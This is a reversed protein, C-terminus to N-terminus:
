RDEGSNSFKYVVENSDVLGFETRAVHEIYTWDNKLRGAQRRLRYNEARSQRNEEILGAKKEQLKRYDVYGNQSFFVIGILAALFVIAAALAITHAKKM